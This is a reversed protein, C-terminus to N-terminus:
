QARLLEDEGDASDKATMKKHSLLDDGFNGLGNEKLM